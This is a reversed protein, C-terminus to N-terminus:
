RRIFDAVLAMQENLMAKGGIAKAGRAEALAMLRTVPPNVIIDYVITAPGIRDIDVPLADDPKMGLSTTNVVLDFDEASAAGATVKVERHLAAVAEALAQAKARDRNSIVLEAAGARALALATARGAGGAGVQLVRKGAVAHGQRALGAIFGPADLNDGILCGEDTRKVFNVAGITEAIPTVADLHPIIAVKHPITVGFGVVNGMRRIADVVTALDDPQVHLPSTAVDQGISQFYANLVASARVHDVPNALVFMLKSRGTIEM